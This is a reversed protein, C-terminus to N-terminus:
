AKSNAIQLEVAGVLIDPSLEPSRWQMAFVSLLHLNESVTTTINLIFLKNLFAPLAQSTEEWKLYIGLFSRRSKRMYKLTSSKKPIEDYYTVLLSVDALYPNTIYFCLTSNSPIAAFSAFWKLFSTGFGLGGLKTAHDFLKKAALKLENLDEGSLDDISINPNRILLTPLENFSNSDSGFFSHGFNCAIMNLNGWFAKGLPTKGPIAVPFCNNLLLLGVPAVLAPILPVGTICSPSTITCSVLSSTSASVSLHLLTRIM